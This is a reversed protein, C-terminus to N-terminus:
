WQRESHSGSGEKVMVPPGHSGGYSTLQSFLIGALIENQKLSSEIEREFTKYYKVHCFSLWNVLLYWSLSMVNEKSSVYSENELSFLGM